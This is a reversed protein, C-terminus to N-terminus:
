RRGILFGHSIALPGTIEAKKDWIGLRKSVETIGSVREEVPIHSYDFVVPQFRFSVIGEELRQSEPQYYQISRKNHMAFREEPRLIIMKNVGESSYNKLSLGKDSKYRKGELGAEVGHAANRFFTKGDKYFVIATNPTTQQVRSRYLRDLEENPFERDVLIVLGQTNDEQMVLIGNTDGNISLITSGACELKSAVYEQMRKRDAKKVM